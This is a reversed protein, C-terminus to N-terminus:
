KLKLTSYEAPRVSDSIKTIGRMLIDGSYLYYYYKFYPVQYADINKFHNDYTSYM